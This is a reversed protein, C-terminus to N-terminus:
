ILADIFHKHALNSKEVDPDPHAALVQRFAEHTSTRADIVARSLRFGEPPVANLHEAILRSLAVLSRVTIEETTNVKLAKYDGDLTATSKIITNSTQIIWYLLQSTDRKYTLYANRTAMDTYHALALRQIRGAILTYPVLYFTFILPSLQHSSNIGIYFCVAGHM